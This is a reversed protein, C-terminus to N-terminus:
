GARDFGIDDVIVTRPSVPFQEPDELELKVFSAKRKWATRLFEKVFEVTLLEGACRRYGFGFPAYGATDCVPYPKGDVVGYVAGFGSNTLEAQRGDNVAFAARKFPCRALGVEKCKKTDNDVSTPASKYRDPDFEDPNSWHRRDFSTEPHPTIMTSYGPALGALTEITSASGANPSIVRFLEMTFRDLPTFPGGDDADDPGNTMTQQYWSRISPDGHVQELRAMVNYITNGWQSLALFNHFCEFVIDKRRFHQGDGANALWYHVFTQDPNPVKRDLVAQVRVDIWQKLAERLERIRMISERVIDLTPYWYGLVATFSAGVQRVEAPIADGTVGVHLDWYLDFYNAYYEHMLPKGANADAFMGALFSTVKGAYKTAYLDPTLASYYIKKRENYPGRGEYGQFFVSLGEDPNPAWGDYFIGWFHPPVANEKSLALDIMPLSPREGLHESTLLFPEVAGKVYDTEFRPPLLGVIERPIIM